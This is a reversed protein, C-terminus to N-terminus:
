QNVQVTGNTQAIGSVTQGNDMRVRVVQGESASTVATGKASVQFGQGISQVSVQQGQRIILPSKLLDNRLPMGAGVSLTTTKGEAQTLSTVVQAPLTGLDGKQWALDDSTLTKGAPLAHAAVLYEAEAHISVRVYQANASSKCKVLLNTNGLLKAGAPLSVDLEPCASLATNPTITGISYSVKGPLGATQIVLFNNIALKIPDNMTAAQSTTSLLISITLSLLGSLFTSVHNM